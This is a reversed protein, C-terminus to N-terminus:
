KKLQNSIFDIKEQYLDNVAKRAGLGVTLDSSLVSIAKNYNELAKSFDKESSYFEGLLYYSWSSNPSLQIVLSLDSKIMTKNEESLPKPLYLVANARGVYGAVFSPLTKIADGYYSIAEPINDKNLSIQALVTYATAKTYALVTGDKHGIVKEAFEKSKEIEDKSLYMRALNMQVGVDEPDIEYGKLYDDQASQFEGMLEYSHGRSNYIQANTTSNIAIAKNYAQIAETFKEQIEYAYGQIRYAEFNNPDKQLVQEVIELAKPAYESEKNDHSGKNVYAEALILLSEIENPKKDLIDQAIKVAEDMNGQNQARAFSVKEVIDSIKIIKGDKYVFNQSFFFYALGATILLAFLVFGIIIKKNM